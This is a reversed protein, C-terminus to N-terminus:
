REHFEGEILSQYNPTLVVLAAVVCAFVALSLGIPVLFYSHWIPMKWSVLEVLTGSNYEKFAKLWNAYALLGYVLAAILLIVFDMARRINPKLVFDLLEVSIMQRRLELWALPMFAIAVMFYRAVVETTMNFSFRFVNRLVVDVCIFLMMAVVVVAGVLAFFKSIKFAFTSLADM